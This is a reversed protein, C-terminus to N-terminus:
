PKRGEITNFMPTYGALLGGDVVLEAGSIWESRDSILFLVMETIDKPTGVRGMPYWPKLDEFVQPNAKAREIWAETAITGPVVTNCRV